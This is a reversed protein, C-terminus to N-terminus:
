VEVREGPKPQIVKVKPYRERIQEEFWNRSEDEGHGLLVVRPEVARLLALPQRLIQLAPAMPQHQVVQRLIRRLDVRDLPDPPVQMILDGAIM